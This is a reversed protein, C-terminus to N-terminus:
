SLGERRKEEQRANSFVIQIFKNIYDDFKVETYKPRYGYLCWILFQRENFQVKKHIFSYETCLECMRYCIDLVDDGYAMLITYPNIEEQGKANMEAVMRFIRRNVDDSFMDDTICCRCNTYFNNDETSCLLTGIIINEIEQRRDM